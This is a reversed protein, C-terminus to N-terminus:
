VRRHAERWPPDDTGRHEACGPADGLRVWGEGMSIGYLKGLSKWEYPCGCPPPTPRSPETM